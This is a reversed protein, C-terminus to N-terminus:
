AFVKPLPFVLSFFDSEKSDQYSQWMAPFSRDANESYPLASREVFSRVLSV